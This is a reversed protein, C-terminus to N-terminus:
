LFIIHLSIELEAEVEDNTSPNFAWFKRKILFHSTVKDDNISVYSVFVFLKITGHFVCGNGVTHMSQLM